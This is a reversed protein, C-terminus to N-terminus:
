LDLIHRLNEQINRDITNNYSYSFKYNELSYRQLSRQSPFINLKNFTFVLGPGGIRLALLGLDKEEGSYKKNKYVGDIALKLKDCIGNIGYGQGIFSRILQNTRAYDGSGILKILRAYDNTKNIRVLYNRKLNLSELRCSNILDNKQEIM